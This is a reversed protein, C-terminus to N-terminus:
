ILIRGGLKESISKLAAKLSQDRRQLAKIKEIDNAKVAEELEAM